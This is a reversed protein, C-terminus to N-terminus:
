EVRSKANQFCSCLESVLVPGCVTAALAMAPCIVPKSSRSRLAQDTTRNSREEGRVNPAGIQKRCLAAQMRQIESCDSFADRLSDYLRLCAIRVSKRATGVAGYRPPRSGNSVSKPVSRPDLLCKPLAATTSGTGSSEGICMAAHFRCDRLKVYCSLSQINVTRAWVTPINPPLWASDNLWKPS